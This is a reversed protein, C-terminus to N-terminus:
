LSQEIIEFIQKRAEDFQLTSLRLRGDIVDPAHQIFYMRENLDKQDLIAQPITPYTHLARYVENPFKGPHATEYILAPTSHDGRLYEDLAAWGVAGHPDLIIGFREHVYKMADYHQQNSVSTSYIDARMAKMDPMHTIVGEQVVRRTVPDRKDYMHGGYHYVVRALNSPHSVIMASSPATKSPKMAYKGTALFHPFTKNRNVGCVIVDVPLGMDKALLTGMMDGFNGSPISPTFMGREKMRPHAYFPYIIQPLLRGVSISNASTFLEEDGLAAALATDSLLAKALEQCVDFDGNVAFAHINEHLTTMQRRQGESISSAPYFIIVAAINSMGRLASAIAPGTDGSTALIVVRRKKRKKLFYNLVRAFKRAARDKFSSTPGETLWVISTKGTVYQVPVPHLADDYADECLAILDKRPIEPCVFPALVETAVQAYSMQGMANIVAQPLRPIDTRPVTYLGGDPALGRLLADEFTIRVGPTNTSVFLVGM